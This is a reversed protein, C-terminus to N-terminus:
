NISYSFIFALSIAVGYPVGHQKTTKFFFLLCVLAVAGGSLATLFLFHPFQSPTYLLALASMLKIDGGGIINAMCLFFGPILVAAFLVLNPCQGHLLSLTCAALGVAIVHKNAILRSTVDQVCVCLLLLVVAIYNATILWTM